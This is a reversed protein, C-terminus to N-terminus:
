NTVTLTLDLNYNEIVISRVVEIIALHTAVIM